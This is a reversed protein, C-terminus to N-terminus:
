MFLQLKKFYLKLFKFITPMGENPGLKHHLSNIEVVKKHSHGKLYTTVKKSEREAVVTYETLFTMCIKSIHLPHPLIVCEARHIPFKGTRESVVFSYRSKCQIVFFVIQLYIKEM